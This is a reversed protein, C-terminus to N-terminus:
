EVAPKLDSVHWTGQTRGDQDEIEFLLSSLKRKVRGKLFPPALKRSYGEAANSLTKNKRWVWDGIAPQWHRRRLDYRRKSEDHSEQLRDAVDKYLLGLNGVLSLRKQRTEEASDPEPKNRYDEGSAKPERGFNLYAPTHRTASHVATRLCFGLQPLRKDWDKQEPSTYATLMSKITRNVRETPNAQPHYVPTFQCKVHYERMKKQFSRSIFQRGNDSIITQPVGYVMFVQDELFQLVKPSTATKLPTLLTYKTLYDTVVFIFKNGATSRPYPGMLDISIIQWPEWATAVKGLLGHPAKTSHKNAQCTQCQKVYKAIDAGMGPWYFSQRVREMTKWAGLHGGIPSDHLKRLIERRRSKPPVENWTKGGDLPRWPDKVLKFLKRGELRWSPYKEPSTDIRETMRWLWPDDDTPQTDEELAATREARSLADAAAHLRGPRHVVKYQYQQLKLAWRALRGQPDKLNGLWVLAHHDTIVTFQSGELYPRFKEIAWLVALCEQETTSFNRESPTLSRSAFAIPREGETTEQSLIAGLGTSSADTQLIFPLSFDPCKLIPASVLKEKLARFAEEQEEGWSWKKSKRLLDTMPAALRSFEPVFRRYWTALGLFRRVQRVTTPTPFGLIAEIKEPDVRLGTHDVIYGLYRLEDRCFHSKDWNLTLGAKKLRTLVDELVKLHSSFDSTAVVIDDLYVFVHPELEPGLVEDILRQWTAPSNHLGFPLRNFQFLGRNPVTFATKPRSDEEVPVQWYASKLDISSLFKADRLRDLIHSIYPLPYADRRTVANLKRYDVCFRYEGTPKKILVVPSSWPSSSKEIVGADLMEKLKEDLVKQIPPSVPYYRQKVPPAEGTDIKHAVATCCGLGPPWSSKFRLILDELQHSEKDTLRSWDCLHEKKSTSLSAAFDWTGEVINPIVKMARWFDLGLLVEHPLHPVLLTELIKVEDDLQFPLTLRAEVYAPTGDAMLVRSDGKPEPRVGLHRLKEWGSGGILTKTAGSDLLGRLKVGLVDVM